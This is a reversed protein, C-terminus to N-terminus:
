MDGWAAKDEVVNNSKAKKSSENKSFTFTRSRPRARKTNGKAKQGEAHIYSELEKKDDASIEETPICTKEFTTKSSDHTTQKSNTAATEAKHSKIFDAKVATKLSRMKQRM